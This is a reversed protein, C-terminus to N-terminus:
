CHIRDIIIKAVTESANGKEYTKYFDLIKKCNEFTTESNTECIYKVIEKTNYAVIYPSDDMDFYLSRDEKYYKERDPQYLIIPRNLLAFDGASSSYDTILVDSILLLDAMDEHNSVNIIRDDTKELELDKVGPHARVLCIWSEGTQADLDNLLALLDLQEIKQKSGESTNKRRLTPAFMVVKCTDKIELDAKVRKIIDTTYNFLIDNRPSGCRVIKGTYKFASRYVMEGYASGAIAYDCFGKQSEAVFDHESSFQSDLLVTKFSRDGHWTQIFIQRNGKSLDQFAANDVYVKTTAYVKYYSLKKEKLIVHVYRPMVSSLNDRKQMIWNIHMNPAIEHLKESIAKPNDSYTKGGFSVFTVTDKKIGFFLRCFRIYLELVSKKISAKNM